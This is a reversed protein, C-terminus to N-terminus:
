RGMRNRSTLDWSEIREAALDTEIGAAYTGSYQGAAAIAIAACLLAAHGSCVALAHHYHLLLLLSLSQVLRLGLMRKMTSKKTWGSGTGMLMRKQQKSNTTLIQQMLLPYLLM